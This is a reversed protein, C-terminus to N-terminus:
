RSNNPSVSIIGQNQPTENEKNEAINEKNESESMAPERDSHDELSIRHEQEKDSM